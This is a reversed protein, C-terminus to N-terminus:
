IRREVKAISEKRWLKIVLLPYLPLSVPSKLSCLSSQLLDLQFVRFQLGVMVLEFLLEM